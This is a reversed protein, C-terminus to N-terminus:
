IMCEILDTNKFGDKRFFEGTIKGNKMIILRDSMGCLESLEESILIISKGKKKMM